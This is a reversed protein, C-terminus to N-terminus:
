MAASAEAFAAGIAGFVVPSPLGSIAFGVGILTGQVLSTALTGMVVGRAVSGLNASLEDKREDSMPVLHVARNVRDEYAYATFEGFETPVVREAIISVGAEVDETSQISVNEGENFARVAPNGTRRLAQVWCSTDILTM